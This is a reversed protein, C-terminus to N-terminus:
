LRPRERGTVGDLIRRDGIPADLHVVSERYEASTLNMGKFQMEFVTIRVAEPTEAAEVRELRNAPLTQWRVTVACPDEPSPEWVQWSVKRLAEDPEWTLRVRDGYREALWAAAAAEDSGTGKLYIVNETEDLDVHWWSTDGPPDATFLDEM